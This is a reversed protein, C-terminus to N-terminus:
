SITSGICECAFVRGVISRRHGKRRCKPERDHSERPAWWWAITNILAMVTHRRNDTPPNPYPPAPSWEWPSNSANHHRHHHLMDDFEGHSHNVTDSYHHLKIIIIIIISAIADTVSERAAPRCAAVDHGDFHALLSSTTCHHSDDVIPKASSPWETLMRRRRGGPSWGFSHMHMGQRNRVSPKPYLLVSIMLIPSIDVCSWFIIESLIM